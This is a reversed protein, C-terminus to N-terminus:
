SLFDIDKAFRQVKYKINARSVGKSFDLYGSKCIYFFRRRKARLRDIIM